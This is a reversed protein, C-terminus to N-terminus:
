TAHSEMLTLLRGATVNLPAGHNFSIQQDNSNRAIYGDSTEIVTIMAQHDDMKLGCLNILRYLWPSCRGQVTLNGKYRITETRLRTSDLPAILSKGEPTENQFTDALFINGGVINEEGSLISQSRQDHTQEINSEIWSRAKQLGGLSEIKQFLTWGAEALANTLHEIMWSGTAADSVIGLKGENRLIHQIMLENRNQSSVIVNCGGIIAAIYQLTTRILHTDQDLATKHRLSSVGMFPLCHIPAQYSQLITSIGIKLARLRAIELLIREGIPIRLYLHNPSTGPKLQAMIDSLQAFACAIEQVLSAGKDHWHCLDIEHTWLRTGQAIEFVFDPEIPEPFAVAGQFESPDLGKSKVIDYLSYFLNTDVAKGRFYLPCKDVPMEKSLTTPQDILLSLSEAGDELAPLIETSQIQACILWDNQDFLHQLNSAGRRYYPQFNIGEITQWSLDKSILNQWDSDAIPPFHKLLDLPDNM